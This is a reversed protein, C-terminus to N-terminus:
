YSKLSEITAQIIDAIVKAGFLVAIGVVNWFFLERAEKIETDSGRAMVFKFGTYIICLVAVVAGIQLAIDALLFVLDVLNDKKLPNLVKLYGGDTAPNVNTMTQGAPPNNVNPNQPVNVNPQQPVNVNPQQPLNVNEEARVAVASMVFFGSIIVASCLTISRRQM